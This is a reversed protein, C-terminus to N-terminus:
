NNSFPNIWRGMAERYPSLFVEPVIRDFTRRFWWPGDPNMYLIDGPQVYVNENWDYRAKILDVRILLPPRGPVSRHVTVTSPSNIPDIYGAMAVATVVDIDRDQPLILAGGLRRARDTVSFNIARVDSLPGVVFFVEDRQAPIHVVDGPRLTVDHPELTTKVFPQNDIWLTPPKGRLPIQLVTPKQPDYATALCPQCNPAHGPVGQAVMPPLVEFASAPPAARRHVEIVEAAFETQGGALAIVNALNNQDPAVAYSGPNAVQGVVSVQITAREVLSVSVNAGVIVRSDGGGDYADDIAQRAMSLNKGAMHLTGILPLNITGDAMVRARLPPSNAEDYLKNVVIELTDNPAILYDAPPITSLSALNLFPATSRTPTRFAVPLQTAPIAPSRLPVYCGALHVLLLLPFAHLLRWSFRAKGNDEDTTAVTNTLRNGLTTAVNVTSM